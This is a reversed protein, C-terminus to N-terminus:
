PSPLQMQLVPITKVGPPIQKSTTGLIGFVIFLM